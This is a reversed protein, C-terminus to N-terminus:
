FWLTIVAPGLLRATQSVYQRRGSSCQIRPNSGFELCPHTDVKKQKINDQTYNSAKRRASGGELSDYQSDLLNLKLFYIRL